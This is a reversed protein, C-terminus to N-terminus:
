AAAPRGDGIRVDGAAAGVLERAARETLRVTGAGASVEVIGEECLREIALAIPGPPVAVLAPLADFPLAGGRAWLLRAGVLARMVVFAVEAGSRARVEYREAPM